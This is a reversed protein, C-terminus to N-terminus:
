DDDDDNNLLENITIMCRLCIEAMLYNVCCGCRHYLQIKVSMKVYFKAFKNQAEMAHFRPINHSIIMYWSQNYYYHLDRHVSSVVVRCFRLLSYHYWTTSDSAASGFRVICGDKM